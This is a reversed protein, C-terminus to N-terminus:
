PRFAPDERTPRLGRSPAARLRLRRYGANLPAKLRSELGAQVIPPRADIQRARVGIKLECSNPPITFWASSEYIPDVTPRQPSEVTDPHTQLTADAEVLGQDQHITSPPM